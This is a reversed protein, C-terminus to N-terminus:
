PLWGEIMFTFLNFSAGNVRRAKRRPSLYARLVALRQPHSSVTLFVLLFSLLGFLLVLALPLGAPVFLALLPALGLGALLMQRVSSVLLPTLPERSPLLRVVSHAVM